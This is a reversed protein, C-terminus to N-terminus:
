LSNDTLSDDIMLSMLTELKSDFFDMKVRTNGPTGNSEILFARDRYNQLICGLSRLSIIVGM